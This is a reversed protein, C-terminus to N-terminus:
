RAPQETKLGIVQPALKGNQFNLSNLGFWITRSVFKKITSLM